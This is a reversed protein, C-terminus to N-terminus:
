KKAEWINYCLNHKEYISKRCLNGIHVRQNWAGVEKKKISFTLFNVNEIWFFSEDM